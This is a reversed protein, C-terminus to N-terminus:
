YMLIFSNLCLVLQFKYLLPGLQPPYNNDEGESDFLECIAVTVPINRMVDSMQRQTVVNITMPMLLSAVAVTGLKMMTTTTKLPPIRHNGESGGSSRDSKCM